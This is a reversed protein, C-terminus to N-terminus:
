DASKAYPDQKSKKIYNMLALAFGGWLGIAGILFMILAGVNM